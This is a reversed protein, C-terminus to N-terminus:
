ALATHTLRFSRFSRFLVSFVSGLCDLLTETRYTVSAFHSATKPRTQHFRTLNVGTPTLNVGTPTLNM